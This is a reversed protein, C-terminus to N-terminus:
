QSQQTIGSQSYRIASCVDILNFKLIYVTVHESVGQNLMFVNGTILNIVPFTNISVVECISFM